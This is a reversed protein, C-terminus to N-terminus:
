GYFSITIQVGVKRDEVTIMGNHDKVYKRLQRVPIRKRKKITAFFVISVLNQVSGIHLSIRRQIGEMPKENERIGFDFLLFLLQAFMKEDINERPYGQVFCETDIGLGRANETQCYLVADILWDQSYIGASIKEYEKKLNELYQATRRYSGSEGNRQVIEAMQEDILQQCKEMRGMQSQISAYHVEMLGLQLKLFDNRESISKRYNWYVVLVGAVICVDLALFPYFVSLLIGQNTAMDIFPMGQVLTFYLVYVTGLLKTHKMGYTRFKKLFPSALSYFVSFLAAVFLILFIDAKQFEGYFMFLDERGEIANVCIVCPLWIFSIVAEGIMMGTVCKVIGGQFTYTFMVCLFIEIVIGTVASLLFTWEAGSFMNKILVDVIVVLITKCSVYAILKWMSRKKEFLANYLIYGTAQGIFSILLMRPAGSLVELMNKDIKM